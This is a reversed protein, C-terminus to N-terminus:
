PNRQRRALEAAAQAALDGGGAGGGVRSRLQFEPADPLQMGNAQAVAQAWTVYHNRVKELNAVITAQSQNPNLSRLTSQLAELEQVAIAGLAGGTPSAERMKQLESFGLNAKITTVDQRLDYASTGPIMGAVAGTFGTNFSTARGLATDIAGVTNGIQNITGPAGRAAAARRKAEEEAMEAQQKPTLGPAAAAPGPTQAPPQGIVGPRPLQGPQVAPVAAASRAQPLVQPAGQTSQMPPMGQPPSAGLIPMPANPPLNPQGAGAGGGSAMGTNFLLNSQSVGLNGAAIANSAAGQRLRERQEPSLNQWQYQDWALRSSEGPTMTRNIPTGVPKGTYPDLPTVQGGTNPFELRAAQQGGVPMTQQPNAPNYMFKEPRGTADNFREDLKWEIQAPILMSLAQARAGPNTHAMLAGIINQRREEPTPAVPQTSTQMFDPVDSNNQQIISQGPGTAAALVRNNAEDERTRIGQALAKQKETADREVAGGQYANYLGALRQTWSPAVFRGSVMQGEPQASQQRLLESRKLQRAIAEQEAQADFPAAQQSVQFM